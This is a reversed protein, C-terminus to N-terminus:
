VEPAAPDLAEMLLREMLIFRATAYSNPPGVGLRLGLLYCGAFSGDDRQLRLWRREISLADKLNGAAVSAMAWDFTQSPGISQGMAWWYLQDRWNDARLAQWDWNRVGDPTVLSAEQLRRLEEGAQQRTALGWIGMAYYDYAMGYSLGDGSRLAALGRNAGDRARQASAQDGMDSLMSAALELGLTMRAAEEGFSVQYDPRHNFRGDPHQVNLSTLYRAALAVRDAITAGQVVSQLYTPDERYISYIAILGMGVGEGRGRTLDRRAEGTTRYHDYWSGAYDVATAKGDVTVAGHQDAAGPLTMLSAMWSMAAEAQGLYGVKALAIVSHALDMHVVDDGGPSTLIYTGEPQLSLLFGVAKEVAQANRQQEPQLSPLAYQAPVTTTRASLLGAPAQHRRASTGSPVAVVAIALAAAALLDLYRRWLRISRWKQGSPARAPTVIPPAKPRPFALHVSRM